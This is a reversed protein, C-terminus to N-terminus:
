GFDLPGVFFRGIYRVFYNANGCPERFKDSSSRGNM